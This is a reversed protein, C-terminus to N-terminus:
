RRRLLRGDIAILGAAILVMGGIEFAELREALFLVGLLLASVPVLFTVLSTNTAGASRILSFYLIYAWGTSLLALGLVAAWAGAGADVMGGTGSWLLVVPLMVLTSATLQGTAVVPPPLDRFRRAYLVACAYSLATGLLALKAWAPGGLGAALGPGIMVATGAVGLLVGALRAPTLKEDATVLNALVLTWFPTTANIVSALGAGIATQGAFMLSFPLVNNLLALVVFSGAMPLALRFSTGAVLLYLHLAAAAIAVRLLVLPLPGIEPVAVGVFFFSAGWLLGLLVLMAWDRATMPPRPPTM